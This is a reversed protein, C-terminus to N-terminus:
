VKDQTQPNVLVFTMQNNKGTIKSIIYPTNYKGGQKLFYLEDWYSLTNAPIYMVTKGVYAKQYEALTSLRQIGFQGFHTEPHNSALVALNCVITFLFVILFKLNKM